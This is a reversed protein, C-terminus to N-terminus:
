FFFSKGCYNVHFRLLKIGTLGNEWFGSSVHNMFEFTWPMSLRWTIHLSRCIAQFFDYAILQNLTTRAIIQYTYLLKKAQKPQYDLVFIGSQLETPNLLVEPPAQKIWATSQTKITHLSFGPLTHKLKLESPLLNWLNSIHFWFVLKM